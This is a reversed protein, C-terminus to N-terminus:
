LKDNTVEDRKTRLAQIRKVMRSLSLPAHTPGEERKKDKVLQSYQAPPKKKDKLTEIANRDLKIKRTLNRRVKHDESEDRNSRMQRIDKLLRMVTLRTQGTGVEGKGRLHQSDKILQAHQEHPAQQM